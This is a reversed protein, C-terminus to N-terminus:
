MTVAKFEIRSAASAVVIIVIAYRNSDRRPNFSTVQFLCCLWDMVIEKWIARECCKLIREDLFEGGIFQSLCDFGVSHHHSRNLPVLCVKM